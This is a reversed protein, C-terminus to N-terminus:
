RSILRAFTEAEIKQLIRNYQRRYDEVQYGQEKWFAVGLNRREELSLDCHRYEGEIYARIVKACTLDAGEVTGDVMRSLDLFHGKKNDLDIVVAIEQGEESYHCGTNILRIIM